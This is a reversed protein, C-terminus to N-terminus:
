DMPRTMLSVETGKSVQRGVEVFGLKAHFRLSAENPPDVNVELALTGADFHHTRMIRDVEVYLASGLGLGQYDNDFAVRDLYMANPHHEAFWLYNVSTYTSGPGLVLCFGAIVEDVVVKLAIAAEGVLFRLQDLDVTGVEPVNAQNIELIRALDSPDIDTIRVIRL